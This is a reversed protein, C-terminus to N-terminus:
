SDVDDFISRESALAESETAAGIDGEKEKWNQKLKQKVKELKALATRFRRNTAQNNFFELRFAEIEREWTWFHYDPDEDKSELWHKEWFGSSERLKKATVQRRVDARLVRLERPRFMQRIEPEQMVRWEPQWLVRQSLEKVFRKRHSEPLLQHGHLIRFLKVEPSYICWSRLHVESLFDPTADTFYRLFEASCRSGLFTVIRRVGGTKRRLERLREEVLPFRSVPVVLRAGELSVDGCTVEGILVEARAGPLYVDMLDPNEGIISGFSDRITPHKFRYNVEGDALEQVVLSGELSRLAQSVQGLTSNMLALTQEEGSEINLPAPLRGGRMFILGLAARDADSFNKIVDRLYEEPEAVFHLLSDRKPEVGKTFVPEALRRATEPLFREHAAFDALFPKIKKRFGQPQKGMRLHNYLIQERERQTLKEVEIVVRSERLLPFLEERLDGFAAKYIYTRSTFIARAGQKVASRLSQMTYNWEITRERDFQTQGFADDVWFFQNPERPNWHKKFDNPHDIKIVRSQWTDAAALALAAAITSKGSGPDGLLFVFGKDHLAQVSRQHSDTVVFRELEDGLWSLIEKAQEYVREDLIETLDGLGYVRPVLTRLRKNERIQQTIWDGGYAVFHKVNPISTFLDRLEAEVPARLSANTMLVYNQALGRSALRRVKEVEEEVNSAHLTADQKATFKCQVVFSGRLDEGRQMKWRGRFAGDRGADSSNAFTQYTQGLIEKLITGCLNQFSAWGLTHLNYLTNESAAVSPPQM